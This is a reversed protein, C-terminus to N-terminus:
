RIYDLWCNHAMNLLLLVNIRLEITDQILNLTLHTLLRRQKDSEILQNQLTYTCKFFFYSFLSTPFPWRWCATLTTSLRACYAFKMFIHRYIVEWCFCFILILMLFWKEWSSQLIIFTKHLYCCSLSCVSKEYFPTLFFIFSYRFFLM